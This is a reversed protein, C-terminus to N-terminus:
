FAWCWLGEFEAPQAGPVFLVLVLSNNMAAQFAESQDFLPGIPVQHYSSLCHVGVTEGQSLSPIILPLAQKLDWDRRIEFM